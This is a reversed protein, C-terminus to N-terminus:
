PKGDPKRPVFLTALDIVSFVALIMFVKNTMGNTILLGVIIPTVANGILRGTSMFAFITGATGPPMSARVMMDHAPKVLRQLIGISGIPAGIRSHTLQAISM